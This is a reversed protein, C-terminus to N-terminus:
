YKLSLPYHKINALKWNHSVRTLHIGARRVERFVLIQTVKEGIKM